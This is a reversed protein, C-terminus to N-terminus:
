LSKEKLHTEFIFILSISLYLRGIIGVVTIQHIVFTDSLNALPRGIFGTTKQPFKHAALNFGSFRVLLCQDPFTRFFQSDIYFNALLEHLYNVLIRIHQDPQSQEVAGNGGSIGLRQLMHGQFPDMGALCIVVFETRRIRINQRFNFFLVFFPLRQLAEKKNVDLGHREAALDVPIHHAPLIHNVM